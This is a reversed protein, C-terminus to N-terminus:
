ANVRTVSRDGGKLSAGHGMSDRAPRVAGYNRTRLCVRCHQGCATMVAPNTSSPSNWRNKSWTGAVSERGGAKGPEFRGPFLASSSPTCLQGSGGLRPYAFSERRVGGSAPRRVCVREWTPAAWLFAHVPRGSSRIQRQCCRHCRCSRVDLRHPSGGCEEIGPAGLHSGCEALASLSSTSSGLGDLGVWILATGVRAGCTLATIRFGPWM